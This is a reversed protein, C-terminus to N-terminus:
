RKKTFKVFLPWITASEKFNIPFKWHGAMLEDASASVVQGFKGQEPVYLSQM